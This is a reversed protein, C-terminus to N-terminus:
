WMWSAPASATRSSAKVTASPRSYQRVPLSSQNVVVTAVYCTPVSHLQLSLALYRTSKALLHPLHLNVLWESHMPTALTHLSLALNRTSKALLHPCICILWGNQICQSYSSHATFPSFKEYKKCALPPLHLNVLWESHM